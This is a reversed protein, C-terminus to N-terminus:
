RLQENLETIMKKRDANNSQSLSYSADDKNGVM